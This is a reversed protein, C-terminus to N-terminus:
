SIAEFDFITKQAGESPTMIRHLDEDTESDAVRALFHGHCALPSCYCGLIRGRLETRAAQMKGPQQVFWWKYREIVESRDGDRGIKFPNGWPSGRGIYVDWRDKKMHVVRTRPQSLRTMSASAAILARKAEILRNDAQIQKLMRMQSKPTTRLLQELYIPLDKEHIELLKAASSPTLRGDFLPGILERRESRCVRAVQTAPINSLMHQKVYDTAQDRYEDGLSGLTVLTTAPIQWSM